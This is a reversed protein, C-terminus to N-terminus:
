LAKFGLLYRMIKAAARARHSIQAKVADPLEGFSLDFGDPIFIPDYGFGGMGSPALAIRGDCIGEAETLVNGDPDAITMACVFRASRDKDQSNVMAGLLMEMKQDFGIDGGYRASLVGPAGGLAAVELGSDDALTISGTQRAYGVAKLEANEAFTSGTEAVEVVPPLDSLCQLRVPAEAFIGTLERVKGPNGTAILITRDSAM